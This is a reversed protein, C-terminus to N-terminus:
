CGSISSRLASYTISKLPNYKCSNVIIRPLNIAYFIAKKLPYLELRVELTSGLLIKNQIIYIIRTPKIPKDTSFKKKNTDTYVLHEVLQALRGRSLQALLVLLFLFIFSSNKIFKPYTPLVIQVELISGLLFHEHSNTSGTYKWTFLIEV